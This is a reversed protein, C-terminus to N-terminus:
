HSVTSNEPYPLSHLHRGEEAACLPLHLHVNGAPLQLYHLPLGDGSHERQRVHPRFGLNPGASMALRHRRDGLIQFTLLYGNSSYNIFATM